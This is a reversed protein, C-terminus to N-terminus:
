TKINKELLSYLGNDIVPKVGFWKEFCPAAQYILMSIGYIRNERKFGKLFDTEKPNYVIDFAMSHSTKKQKFDNNLINIPTTNIILNSKEVAQLVDEYGVIYLKKEKKLHEIKKETRNYIYIKEFNLKKLCFLIAKSAGGYGIVFAKKEKSKQLKEDISKYFGIWDTNGGVWQNNIRSVCNIAGITRADEELTDVKDGLLGKFPITVNFGVVEEDDLILKIEENFTKPKIEKFTYTANIDHKRFWYDFILPSLSKSVHTGIVFAKKKM